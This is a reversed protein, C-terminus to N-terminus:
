KINFIVSKEPHPRKEKELLDFIQESNSINVSYDGAKLIASAAVSNNCDPTNQWVITDNLTKDSIKITVPGSIPQTRYFTIKGNGEGYPNGGNCNTYNLLVCKKEEVNVKYDCLFADGTIRVSYNGAKLIQSAAINTDCNPSVQWVITDNIQKSAINIIVNGAIQQTRFFTIKGNGEGYPNPKPAPPPDTLGTKSDCSSIYIIIVALFFGTLYIILRNLNM